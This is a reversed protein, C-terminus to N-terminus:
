LSFGFTFLEQPPSPRTLSPLTDEGGGGGGGGGEGRKRVKKRRNLEFV